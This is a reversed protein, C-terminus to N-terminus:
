SAALGVASFPLAIGAEDVVSSLGGDREVRFGSITVPGPVPLLLRSDLVYLFPASPTLSEELPFTDLPTTATIGGADRLAISGDRAIRLGSISRSDANSTYAFRGDRTVAMWCPAIQHTSVEGNIPRLTGGRLRYATVAGLGTPGGLGDAVVLEDRQRPNFAMGFPYAGVAATTTAPGLRGEDGVPYVDITNTSKETVVLRRGRPDLQVQAPNPHATSLPRTAGPIPRLVGDDVSFGTVNAAETRGNGANLVYLRGSRTTLSVPGPGGSPFVGVLRPHSGTRLVSIQDSGADVAFLWRGDASLVISGQVGDAFAAVSGRGGIATVGIRHLAGDAGRGFTTISNSGTVDNDLVYVLGSRARTEDASAASAASGSALVGTLALATEVAAVATRTMTASRQVTARM